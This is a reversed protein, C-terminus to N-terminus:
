AQNRRRRKLLLTAAAVPLGLAPEPVDSAALSTLVLEGGPTADNAGIYAISGTFGSAPDITWDALTAPDDGTWNLLVYTASADPAYVGPLIKLRATPGFSVNSATVLDSTAPTLGPEWELTAGDTLTLTKGSGITLTGAGNDGPSLSATAGISVPRNITGVGGLRATNIASVTADNASLVGNILLTGASATTAGSYTNALGSLKVTGGNQKTIGSSVFPNAADTGDIFNGQFDTAGTPVGLGGTIIIDKNLAINGTWTSLGIGDAGGLRTGGTQGSRVVLDRSFTVGTKTLLNSQSTNVATNGVIVPSTGLGLANTHGLIITNQIITTQGTFTNDGNLELNTNGNKTLDKSGGATEGIAGNVILRGTGDPAASNGNVNWQQSSALVINNNITQVGSVTNQRNFGVLPSATGNLTITGGTFTLNRGASNSSSYNIAFRGIAVEAPINITDGGNYGNEQFQAIDATGPLANTSWNSATTWTLDAGNGNWQITAAQAHTTLISAAAAAAFVAASARRSKKDSQSFM